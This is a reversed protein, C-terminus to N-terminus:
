KFSKGILTMGGVVSVFAVIAGVIERVAIKFVSWAINAGNIIDIIGAILLYINIYLASIVGLVILLIGIVLRM